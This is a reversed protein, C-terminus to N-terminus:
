SYAPSVSVQWSDLIWIGVSIDFMVMSSGNEIWVQEPTLQPPLTAFTHSSALVHSGLCGSALGFLPTGPAFSSPDRNSVVVGACDSGPAGTFAANVFQIFHAVSEPRIPM